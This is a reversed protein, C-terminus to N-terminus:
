NYTEHAIQGLLKNVNMWDGEVWMYVDGNKMVELANSRDDDATGNGISFVSQGSTESDTHSVNWEGFAVEHENTLVLTDNNKYGLKEILIDLQETSGSTISDIRDSLSQESAKARTEESNIKGDLRSVEAQIGSVKIGNPSVSLWKESKNDVLVKVVHNNVVLGDKFENGDTIFDNVDLSATEEGDKNTFHIKNDDKNYSVGAFFKELDNDLITESGQYNNQDQYGWPEYMRTKRKIAM